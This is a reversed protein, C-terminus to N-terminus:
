EENPFTFKFLDTKLVYVNKKLLRRMELIWWCGIGCLPPQLALRVIVTHRSGLCPYTCCYGAPHGFHKPHNYVSVLECQYELTVGTISQYTTLLM